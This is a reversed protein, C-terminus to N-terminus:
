YNKIYECFQAGVGCDLTLVNEDVRISEADILMQKENGVLM